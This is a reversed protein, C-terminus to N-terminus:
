ITDIRCKKVSRLTLLIKYVRCLTLLVSRPAASTSMSLDYGPHRLERQGERVERLEESAAVRRADDGSCRAAGRRAFACRLNRPFEM